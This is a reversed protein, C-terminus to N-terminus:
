RIELCGAMDTNFMEISLKIKEKERDSFQNNFEYGLSGMAKASRPWRPSGKGNKGGFYHSM